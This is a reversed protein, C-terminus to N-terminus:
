HQRALSPLWTSRRSWCQLLNNPFIWQSKCLEFWFTSKDTIIWDYIRRVFIAHDYLGSFWICSFVYILGCLIGSIIWAVFKTGGYKRNQCIKIGQPLIAIFSMSIMIVSLLLNEYSGLKQSVFKVVVFIFTKGILIPWVLNYLIILMTRKLLTNFKNLHKTSISNTM